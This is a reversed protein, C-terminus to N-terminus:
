INLIHGLKLRLLIILKDPSNHFQIKAHAAHTHAISINSKAIQFHWSDVIILVNQKTHPLWTAMASAAPAARLVFFSFQTESTMEHEINMRSFQIFRM